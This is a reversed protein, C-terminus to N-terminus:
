CFNGGSGKTNLISFRGSSVFHADGSIVGDSVLSLNGGSVFPKQGLHNLALIDINNNGQIYLSGGARAIFPNTVSDRVRVTESALLNLNETTVLRSEVLTLNRNASLTANKAIVDKVVVDGNSVRLGSGTLELEGNSNRTLGTANNINGGTLMQPLNGVANLSSPLIDLSLLNGTQSLRVLNEGPVSMVNIQGGPASIQGTSVVMGGLLTLNQGQEVGLNGANVIAGVQNMTLAFSNPAGILAAYNNNSNNGTASFFNNNGFGIGNATTATFDAPVNLSANSGFIIGSPNILFLNANGGSVQLLGNIVSIDGGNVRALINQIDPQSLFNAIQNETLGFRSFSHFLNAGDRSVTGGTINIQNNNQNVVTGTGDNAPIISEAQVPYNVSLVSLLSLGLVGLTGIFRRNM